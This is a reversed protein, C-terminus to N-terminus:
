LSGGVEALVPRYAPLEARINELKLMTKSRIETENSYAYLYSNFGYACVYNIIDCFLVFMLGSSKSNSSKIRNKIGIIMNEM